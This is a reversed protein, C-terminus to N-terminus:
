EFDDENWKSHHRYHTDIKNCHKTQRNMHKMHGSRQGANKYHGIYNKDFEERQSLADQTSDRAQGALSALHQHNDFTTPPDGKHGPAKKFPPRPIAQRAKDYKKSDRDSTDSTSKYDHYKDTMRGPRGDDDEDGYGYDDDGPASYISSPAKVGYYNPRYGRSYREHEESPDAQYSGSRSRPHQSSSSSYFEDEAIHGLALSDMGQRNLRNSDIPRGRHDTPNGDHDRYGGYSM